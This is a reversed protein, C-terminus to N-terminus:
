PDISLAARGLSTVHVADVAYVHAHSSPGAKSRRMFAMSRAKAQGPQSWWDWRYTHGNLRQDDRILSPAVATGAVKQGLGCSGGGSM